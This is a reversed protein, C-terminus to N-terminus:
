TISSIRPPHLMTQLLQHPPPHMMTQLPHHHQSHLMMATSSSGSSFVDDNASASSASDAPIIGSLMEKYREFLLKEEDSLNEKIENFDTAYYRPKENKNQNQQDEEM